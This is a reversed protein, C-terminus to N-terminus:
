WTSTAADSCFLTGQMVPSSDCARPSRGNSAISNARARPPLVGDPPAAASCRQAQAAADRWYCPILAEHNREKAACSSRCRPRSTDAHRRHAAPNRRGEFTMRYVSIRTAAAGGGGRRFRDAGQHDGQRRRRLRRRRAADRSPSTSRSTARYGGLEYEGILPRPTTRLVRATGRPEVQAPGIREAAAGRQGGPADSGGDRGQWRHRSPRWTRRPMLADGADFANEGETRHTGRRAGKVDLGPVDLRDPAPHTRRSISSSPLDSGIQARSWRGAADPAAHCPLPPCSQWYLLSPPNRDRRSTRSPHVLRTAETVSQSTLAQRM